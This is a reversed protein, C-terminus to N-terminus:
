FFKRTKVLKFSKINPTYVFLREVTDKYSTDTGNKGSTGIKSKFPIDKISVFDDPATYESTMIKYGKDSQERVWQWYKDHSFFLAERCYGDVRANAYPPDNYIFTSEPDYNSLPFQDYPLNTFEAQRLKNVTYLYSTLKLKYQQPQYGWRTGRFSHLYIAEGAIAPDKDDRLRNFTEKDMPTTSPIYGQQGKKYFAILPLNIDNAVIKYNLKDAINEAVACGGCFLEIYTGGPKLNNKIINTIIDALERKSGMYVM